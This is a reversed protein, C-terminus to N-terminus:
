FCTSNEASLTPGHGVLTCFLFSIAEPVDQFSVKALKVDANGGPLLRLVVPIAPLLALLVYSADIVSGYHACRTPFGAASGRSKYAM